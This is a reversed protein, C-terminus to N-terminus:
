LTIMFVFIGVATSFAYLATGLLLPFKMFGVSANLYSEDM